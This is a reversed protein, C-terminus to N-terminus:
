EMDNDYPPLRGQQIADMYNELADLLKGGVGRGWKRRFAQGRPEEVAAAAPEDGLVTSDDSAVIRPEATAPYMPTILVSLLDTLVAPADRRAGAIVLRRGRSTRIVASEGFAKPFLLGAPAPIRSSLALEPTRKATLDGTALRRYAAIVESVRAKIIRDLRPKWEDVMDPDSYVEAFAIDDSLGHVGDPRYRGERLRIQHLTEGNSFVPVARAVTYALAAEYEAGSGSPLARVLATLYEPGTDVYMNALATAADGNPPPSPSSSAVTTGFSQLHRVYADYMERTEPIRKGSFTLYEVPPNGMMRVSVWNDVYWRRSALGGRLAGTSGEPLVTGKISYGAVWPASTMISVMATEPINLRPNRVSPTLGPKADPIRFPPKVMPTRPSPCDPARRRMFAKFEDMTRANQPFFTDRLVVNAHRDKGEAAMDLFPHVMKYPMARMITACLMADAAQTNDRTPAIRLVAQMVDPSSIGALVEVGLVPIYDPPITHRVAKYLGRHKKRQAPLKVVKHAHISKLIKEAEKAAEDVPAPPFRRPPFRGGGFGRPRVTGRVTKAPKPPGAAGAAAKSGAAPRGGAARRGGEVPRGGAAPKGKVAPRGGRRVKALANLYM